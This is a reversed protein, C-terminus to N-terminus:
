SNPRFRWEATVKLNAQASGKVVFANGQASLQIGFEIVAKDPRIHEGMDQFTQMVAACYGKITNSVEQFAKVAKDLEEGVGTERIPSTPSTPSTTIKGETEVGEVAEIWITTQEDCHMPILKPM